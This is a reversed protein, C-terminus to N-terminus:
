RHWKQHRSFFVRTNWLTCWRKRERERKRWRSLFLKHLIWEKANRPKVRLFLTCFLLIVGMSATCVSMRYLFFVAPYHSLITFPFINFFLFSLSFSTALCSPDKRRVTCRREWASGFRLGAPTQLAKKDKLSATHAASHRARLSLRFPPFDYYYHYYLKQFVCPLFFSFFLNSKAKILLMHRAIM